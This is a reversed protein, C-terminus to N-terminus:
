ALLEDVVAEIGFRLPDFAPLHHRRSLSDAEANAKDLDMHATNLSIGVFRAAPNTRRALPLYASMAEGIDPLPFGPFHATETRGPQHCLVLADPQSGHLLGLTVGAYAPHFLAGQGEIVAWHDAPADPSLLEAAGAIFDAVVADIAIGSGAIMIGTQGTARFDAVHGRRRLEAALALATYKKGLACDTGVTLLRRGSRRRGTAIPIDGDFHRVDHLTRGLQRAAASIEPVDGLRSHLGSVLDLGAELAELCSAIWHPPLQGGPPATGLLLSRAGAAKAQAPSMDVLGLDVASESLRWQGTCAEPAWQVIGLATKARTPLAEDGVFLLHPRPLPRLLAAGDPQAPATM